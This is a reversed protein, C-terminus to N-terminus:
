RDHVGVHLRAVVVEAIVADQAGLGCLDAVTIQEDTTRGPRRDTLVEGLTVARARVSRDAHQLEGAYSAVSLDDCVVVEALALLDAALEQKGATDSGIATVHTGPRVWKAQILPTRSGTATVVIDTAAVADALNDVPEAGVDTALAATKAHDRGWVAVRLQPLAARHAHIQARAQDGSGVILLRRADPRALTMTALAGAAATRMQTLLGDDALLWRAAGTGADLVVTFGTPGAGPFDGTAVKFCLVTSGRLHAGKIHVEGGGRPRMEFQDPQDVEGDAVAHFARRAADLADSCSVSAAVTARDVVQM